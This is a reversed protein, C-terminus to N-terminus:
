QFPKFLAGNLAPLDDLNTPRNHNRVATYGFNPAYGWISWRRRIHNYAERPFDSTRGKRILFAAFAAKELASPPVQVGVGKPVHGEVM